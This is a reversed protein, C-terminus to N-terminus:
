QFSNIRCWGVSSPMVDGHLGAIPDVGANWCPSMAFNTPHGFGLTCTKRPDGVFGAVLVTAPCTGLLQGTRGLDSAVGHVFLVIPTPV